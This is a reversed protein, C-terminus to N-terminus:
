NLYGSKKFSQSEELAQKLRLASLFEETYAHLTLSDQQPLSELNSRAKPHTHLAKVQLGGLL